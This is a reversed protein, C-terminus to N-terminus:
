NRKINEGKPLGISGSCEFDFFYQELKHTKLFCPIYGDQCNSVIFLRNKQFLTQLTKELNQFLRGGHKSLYEQESRSFERALKRHVEEHQGPFLNRVIEIIPLGMYCKMVEPTVTAKIDPYNALVANWAAGSGESADWLTGDLDFIISDAKM